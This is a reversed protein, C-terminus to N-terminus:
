FRLAFHGNFTRGDQLTAVFWYDSAPLALGNYTGDWFDNNSWLTKLLKGYRDYINVSVFARFEPAIGKLSWVDNVTDNNPTFFKPYGVVFVEKTVVGCNNKIDKVYITYRGAQLNTFTNSTQYFLEDDLAYEYEGEGTVLISITNNSTLDEIEVTEITAINSPEVKIIRTQSCGYVTTVIVTYTGPENVEIDKTTEGTSWNYYFNSSINDAIGPSITIPNPFENLCYLVSQERIGPVSAVNLELETIAFCANNQEVRAYIIQEFPQTNSYGPGLSNNELLADDYSEFYSVELDTPLGQLIISDADSLNFFGIGDETSDDCVELVGTNVMSAVSVQLTVESISHCGSLINTVLAFVTQFNSTNIYNDTDEIVENLQIDEYFDVSLNPNGGTISPISQNLNFSTIGDMEIDDCQFLNTSIVEPIDNVQITIPTRAGGSCGDFLPIVWFTTTESLTVTYSLETSLLVTSSPTEFWALNPTNTTVEITISEEGCVTPIEFEIKPTIITTSASLNLEEEGPLGGFEVIYGQPHYPSGVADGENGLDNWSGLNGISPDTIHAYDEGGFDNPEGVNWFNFEGNIPSGTNQNYFETGDEPGSVWKWIGETEEDSAGIWGTGATQQGLLQAEEITTVTALYGQLGFYEQSEAEAFAQSWTIGVSPIYFYYHGTSPLYNAIGLNISFQKDETFNTQTTIYVVELIAAEFESFTAPGTLVLQGLAANWTGSINPHIGTLQLQDQGLTFGESIQIIVEDWSNSNTPPTISVNTVIPMPSDSCFEILGEATISPTLNSGQSFCLWPLVWLIIIFVKHKM